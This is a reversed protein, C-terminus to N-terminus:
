LNQETQETRDNRKSAKHRAGERELTNIGADLLLKEKVLQMAERILFEM